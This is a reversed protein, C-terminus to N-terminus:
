GIHQLIWVPAYWKPNPIPCRGHWRGWICPIDLLDSIQPHQSKSHKTNVNCKCKRPSPGMWFSASRTEACKSISLAGSRTESAPDHWPCIRKSSSKMADHSIQVFTFCAKLVPSFYPRTLFVYCFVYGWIYVCMYYRM